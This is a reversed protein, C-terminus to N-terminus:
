RAKKKASPKRPHNMEGQSNNRDLMAIKTTIHPRCNQDSEREATIDSYREISRSCCGRSPCWRLRVATAVNLRRLENRERLTESALAQEAMEPLEIIGDVPIVQVHASM